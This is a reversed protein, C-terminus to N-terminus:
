FHRRAASDPEYGVSRSRTGNKRPIPIPATSSDRLFTGGAGFSEGTRLASADEKVAARSRRVPWASAVPPTSEARKSGKSDTSHSKNQNQIRRLQEIAPSSTGNLHTTAEAITNLGLASAWLATNDLVDRGSFMERGRSPERGLDSPTTSAGLSPAFRNNLRTDAKRPSRGREVPSTPLMLTPGSFDLRSPSPLPTSSSLLSHEVDDCATALPRRTPPRSVSRSMSGTSLSSSTSVSAHSLSRRSRSYPPDLSSSHNRSGSRPRRRTSAALHNRCDVFEFEDAHSVSSSEDAEEWGIDWAIEDVM